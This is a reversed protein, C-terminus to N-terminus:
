QNECAHLNTIVALSSAPFCHEFQHPRELARGELAKRRTNDNGPPASVFFIRSTSPGSPSSATYRTESVQSLMPIKSNRRSTVSSKTSSKKATGDKKGPLLEFSM